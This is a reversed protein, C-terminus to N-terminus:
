KRSASYVREWNKIARSLVPEINTEEHDKCWKLFDLIVLIQYSSCSSRFEGSKERSYKNLAAITDDLILFKDKFAHEVCWLIYLPVARDLPIEPVDWMLNPHEEIYKDSFEKKNLPPFAQLLKNKM